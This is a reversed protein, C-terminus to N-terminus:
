RVSLLEVEFVLTAGGPIIRGAGRDGYGLESPITLLRIEGVGMGEVGLDWGKIVYGAGLPFTFPTGRKRSTDFPNDKSGGDQLWGVYHVTVEQGATAVVAGAPAKKIIEYRLEPAAAPAKDRKGGGCCGGAMIVGAIIVTLFGVQKMNMDGYEKISPGNM